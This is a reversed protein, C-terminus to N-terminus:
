ACGARGNRAMGEISGLEAYDPVVTDVRDGLAARQHVWVAEDCLLGPLLVLTEKSM